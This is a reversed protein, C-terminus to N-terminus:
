HHYVYPKSRIDIAAIDTIIYASGQSLVHRFQKEFRKPVSVHAMAGDEDLLIGDISILGGGYKPNMNIADWLRILRALVKCDQQGITISKLNTPSEM